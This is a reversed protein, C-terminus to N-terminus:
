ESKNRNDFLNVQKPILAKYPKSKTTPTTVESSKTIMPYVLCLAGLIILCAVLFIISITLGVKLTPNNGSNLFDIEMSQKASCNDMLLLVATRMKQYQTGNNANLYNLLTMMNDMEAEGYSRVFSAIRDNVSIDFDLPNGYRRTCVADLFCSQSFM